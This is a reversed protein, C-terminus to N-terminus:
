TNLTLYFINKTIGTCRMKHVLALHLVQSFSMYRLCSVNRSNFTVKISGFGAPWLLREWKVALGYVLVHKQFCKLLSIPLLLIKIWIQDASGLQVTRSCEHATMYVANSVGRASKIRETLSLVSYGPIYNYSM